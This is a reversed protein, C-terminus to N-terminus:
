RELSCIALVRFALPHILTIHEILRGPVRTLNYLPLFHMQHPLYSININAQKFSQGCFDPSFNNSNKLFWPYHHLLIWLGQLHIFCPSIWNRSWGSTSLVERQPNFPLSMLIFALFMCQCQSGVSELLWHWETSLFGFSLYVVLLFQSM